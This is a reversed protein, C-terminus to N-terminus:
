LERCNAFVAMTNYGVHISQISVIFPNGTCTHESNGESADTIVLM